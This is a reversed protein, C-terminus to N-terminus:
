TKPNLFNYLTMAIGFPVVLYEKLGNGKPTSYSTDLSKIIPQDPDIEFDALAKNRLGESEFEESIM